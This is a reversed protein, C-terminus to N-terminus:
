VGNAPAMSRRSMLNVAGENLQRQLPNRNFNKELGGEGRLKDKSFWFSNCECQFPPHGVSINLDNSM